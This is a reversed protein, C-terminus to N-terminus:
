ATILAIMLTITALKEIRQGGTKTRLANNHEIFYVFLAATCDNTTM